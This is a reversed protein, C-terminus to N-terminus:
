FTSVQWGNFNSGDYELTIKIRREEDCNQATEYAALEVRYRLMSAPNLKVHMTVDLAIM